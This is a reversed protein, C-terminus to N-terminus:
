SRFGGEVRLATEDNPRLWRRREATVDPDTFLDRFLADLPTTALDIPPHRYEHHLYAVYDAEWADRLPM